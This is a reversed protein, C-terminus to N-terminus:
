LIGTRLRRKDIKSFSFIVREKRYSRYVINYWCFVLWFLYVIITAFVFLFFNRILVSPKRQKKLRDCLRALGLFRGDPYCVEQEGVLDMDYVKYISYWVLDSYFNPSSQHLNCSKFDLSSIDAKQSIWSFVSIQTVKIFVGSKLSFWTYSSLMNHDFLYTSWQFM